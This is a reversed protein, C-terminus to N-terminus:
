ESYGAIEGRDNISLAVSYPVPDGGGLTGLDTMVGDRWLFAHLAADGETTSFGVVWGKENVGFGQSFTGGLTGLDTLTYRVPPGSQKTGQEQASAPLNTALLLIITMLGLLSDRKMGTTPKM